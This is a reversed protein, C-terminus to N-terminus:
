FAYLVVTLFNFNNNVSSIYYLSVKQWGRFSLSLFIHNKKDILELRDVPHAFSTCSCCSYLQIATKKNKNTIDFLFIIKDSM